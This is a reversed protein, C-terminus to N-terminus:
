NSPASGVRRPRQQETSAPKPAPGKSLGTARELDDIDCGLDKGDTGAGKYPSGPKLRYNGAAVDVFIESAQKPTFFNGSPYHSAVSGGVQDQGANFMANRQYVVNSGWSNFAWSGETQFAELGLGMGGRAWLNNRMTLGRQKAYNSDGLRGIKQDVDVVTNHEVIVEDAMIQTGLFAGEAVGPSYKASSIDYVLNNSITIRRTGATPEGKPGKNEALQIATAAHRIINSKFTVDACTSWTAPGYQNTAKLLVAVGTQAARWSNEFLNGEILVRQGNKIELLNKIAWARGAYSPSGERWTLPKNFHNRKIVIDSPVLGTIPSDTGGFMVNEGAAELYNNEILFPGPGTAGWVAQSDQWQHHIDSIYSNIVSLNAGNLAVGRVQESDPYGHVYCRDLTIHHPQEALSQGDRDDSLWVINRVDVKSDVPKFEIGILRYHHAGPDTQLSKTAQGPAVLKPLLAQHAPTVRQGEGPLRDLASTQITIWAADTESGRKKPLIFPGVYTAGAELVITDGPAADNLAKQFDGRAAVRITRGGAEAITESVPEARQRWLTVAVVASLVCLLVLMVVVIRKTRVPMAEILIM